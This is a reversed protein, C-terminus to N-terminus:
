SHLLRAFKKQLFGPSALAIATSTMIQRVEPRPVKVIRQLADIGAARLLALTRAGILAPLATAVRIRKPAIACTYELGAAVGNEAEVRWKELISQAQVPQRFIEEATIGRSHLEESPLYCRGNRLDNGADRLINILQLGQGYQRGLISMEDKSRDTFNRLHRFCVSTWFEGVCGAVLYTYENLESATALTRVGNAEGFREVDFSQGRNIKALVNRIDRLDDARLTELWDLCAPLAEILAQESQNKQRPAFSDRLGAIEEPPLKDQIADALNRLTESRMGASIETTDAITDTARALLYALAIPDRLRLPLIRVSLYFSRSVARLVPGRLRDIQTRDKL